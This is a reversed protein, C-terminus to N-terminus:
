FPYHVVCMKLYLYTHLIQSYIMTKVSVTPFFIRRGHPVKNHDDKENYMTIQSSIYVYVDICYQMIILDKFAYSNLNFM